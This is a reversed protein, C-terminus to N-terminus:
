ESYPKMAMHVVVRSERSEPVCSVLTLVREGGKPAEGIAFESNSAVEAIWEDFDAESAFEVRMYDGSAGATYVSFPALRYGESLGYFNAESHALAYEEARFGKLSGFMSGDRMNHGYIVNNPDTLDRRNRADLFISGGNSKGGDFSRALYAANDAGRAVPYDIATETIRLWGVADPNIRSLAEMDVPPRYGGEGGRASAAEGSLTVAERMAGYASGSRGYDILRDIILAGFAIACAAAVASIIIWARRAITFERM